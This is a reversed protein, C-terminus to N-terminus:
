ENTAEMWYFRIRPPTAEREVDNGLFRYKEAGLDAGILDPADRWFEGTVQFGAKEYCRVARPNTAAVDLRLAGMEHGFWWDCVMGMAHTGIARDCFDPHIRFSMNEARRNPWDIQLFAVYGIAVNTGADVVLAIRDASGARAEYARDLEEVGLGCFTFGFVGHPWPYAPWKALVDMDARSLVRLTLRDAHIPLRSELLTKQNRM